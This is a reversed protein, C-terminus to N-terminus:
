QSNEILRKRRIEDIDGEVEVMSELHEIRAVAQNDLAADDGYRKTHNVHVKIERVDLGKRNAYM